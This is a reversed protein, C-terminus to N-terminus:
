VVAIQIGDIPKGGIGAFGESGSGYDYVWDLWDNTPKGLLHVRYKIKRGSTLKMQVKDINRKLDGAFNEKNSDYQRDRQWNYYNTLGIAHVRYDLYGVSNSDGKIYARIAKIPKGYVGAYGNSGSGYNVVYDWWKGNAYVQYVIDGVSGASSSSSSSGSSSPTSPTAPASPVVVESPIIDFAALIGKAIADINNNFKTIDDPNTIFCCELLRYSYRKNAARNPNALDNRGVIHNSRGPFMGCMFNALATDYKDAKFGSKIIVHAGKASASASDQHLEIIQYDKSITLKSIGNDRYYNRSTDGLMVSDGGYAKIRAALARVREAESFGNACAGPDGAGHGAIVFLKAM